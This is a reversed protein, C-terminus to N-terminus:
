IADRELVPVVEDKSKCICKFLRYGGILKLRDM